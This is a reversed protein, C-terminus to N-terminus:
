NSHQQITECWLISDLYEGAKNGGKKFGGAAAAAGKTFGAKKGAKAGFGAAGKAGSKFGAAAGKKFGGKALVAGGAGGGVLASEAVSLQEESAATEFEEGGENEGEGLSESGEGDFDGGLENEEQCHVSYFILASCLLALYIQEIPKPSKM